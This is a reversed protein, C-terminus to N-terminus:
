DQKGDDFDAFTRNKDSKTNKFVITETEKEAEIFIQYTGTELQSIDVSIINKGNKLTQTAAYVMFANLKRVNYSVTSPKKVDLVIEVIGGEELPTISTVTLNNAGSKDIKIVNTYQFTADANVQKLRYRTLGKDASIDLFSYDEKTTTTGHGQVSGITTFVVGDTSREVLFEKNNNEITTQWTLMNGIDFDSVDFGIIKTEAAVLSLSSWGFVFLLLTNKLTTNISKKM